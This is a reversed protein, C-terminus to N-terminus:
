FKSNYITISPTTVMIRDAYSYAIQSLYKLFIRKLIKIQFLKMEIYKM